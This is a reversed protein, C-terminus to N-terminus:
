QVQHWWRWIKRRLVPMTDALIIESPWGVPTAVLCGAHQQIVFGLYNEFGISETRQITASAQM